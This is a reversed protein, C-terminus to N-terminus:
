IMLYRVLHRDLKGSAFVKHLFDDFQQATSRFYDAADPRIQELEAHSKAALFEEYNDLFTGFEPLLSPDELTDLSHALREMPTMAFFPAFKEYIDVHEVM